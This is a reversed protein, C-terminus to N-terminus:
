IGSRRHKAGVARAWGFSRLPAPGPSGDPLTVLVMDNGRWQTMVAPLACTNSADFAIRGAPYDARTRGIEANVHEPAFSGARQTADLLVLAASYGHVATALASDIGGHVQRFRNILEAERAGGMGEAFWNAALTGERQGGDLRGWSGLNACKELFVLQPRYQRARMARLLADGEAAMLQGILIDADVAQAEAVQSDFTDTGIPFEAHYVIEYDFAHATDAWIGGMVVGDEELDTFLAVRRNTKILDATRFQMQTMQLEDFFISWAWSWGEAAGGLWARLPTVAIVTPVGVDEAVVSIPISLRPTVGGILAFVRSDSVLERARLSALSPVSENDTIVVDVVRGLIGGDANVDAVADVIGARLANGFAELAGTLPATVGLRIPPRRAM